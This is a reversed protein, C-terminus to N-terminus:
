LIVNQSPRYIFLITATKKELQSLYIDTNM